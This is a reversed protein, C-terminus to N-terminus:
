ACGAAPFSSWAPVSAAKRRLPPRGADACGTVAPRPFRPLGFPAFVLVYSAAACSPRNTWTPVISSAAPTGNGTPACRNCNQPRYDFNPIFSQISRSRAAQRARSAFRVRPCHINRNWPGGTNRATACRHRQPAYASFRSRCTEPIPAVHHRTTTAPPSACRHVQTQGPRPM